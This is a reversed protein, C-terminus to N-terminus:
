VMQREGDRRGNQGNRSIASVDLVAPVDSLLASPDLPRVLPDPLLVPQDPIEVLVEM